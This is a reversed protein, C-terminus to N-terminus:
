SQSTPQPGPFRIRALRVMQLGALGLSPLACPLRCVGTGPAVLQPSGRSCTRACAGRHAESKPRSQPCPLHDPYKGLSEESRGVLYSLLPGFEAWRGPSCRSGLLAPRAGWVRAHSATLAPAGDSTAWAAQLLPPRLTTVRPETPRPHRPALLEQGQGSRLSAM